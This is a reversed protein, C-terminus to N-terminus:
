SGESVFEVAGTRDGAPLETWKKFAEKGMMQTVMPGEDGDLTADHRTIVVGVSRLIDDFQQVAKKQHTKNDGDKECLILPGEGEESM